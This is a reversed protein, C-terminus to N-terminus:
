KLADGLFMRAMQWEREVTRNSIGLVDATEGVSLGAFFRLKVVQAGQPDVTELRSLAEDLATADGVRAALTEIIADLPQREGDARRKERNARRAHDVVISRMTTAIWAIFHQRNEFCQDKAPVLRLYAEHVLETTQFGVNGRRRHAISKLEDYLLHFLRDRATPDGREADHL